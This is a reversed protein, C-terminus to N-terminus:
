EIVGKDKLTRKFNHLFAKHVFIFEDAGAKLYADMWRGQANRNKDKRFNYEPHFYLRRAYPTNYSVQAGVRNGFHNSGNGSTELTGTDKPVKGSLTLDDVVDMSTDYAAEQGAQKISQLAQDNLKFDIRKLRLKVANM